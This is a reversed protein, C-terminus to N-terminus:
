NVQALQELPLNRGLRNNFYVFKTWKRSIYLHNKFIYEKDIFLFDILRPTDKKQVYRSLLPQKKVDVDAYYLIKEDLQQDFVPNLSKIRMTGDYEFM